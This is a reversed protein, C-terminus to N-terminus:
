QLLGKEILDAIFKVGPWAAPDERVVAQKKLWHAIRLREDARIAPEVADLVTQIDDALNPNDLADDIANEAIATLEVRNM